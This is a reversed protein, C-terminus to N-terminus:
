VPFSGGCRFAPLPCPLWQFGKGECLSRTIEEPTAGTFKATCDNKQLYIGYDFRTASLVSDESGATRRLVVGAFLCRGDEVMVVVDGIEPVPLDSGEVFAIEVELQRSLSAKDGSWSWSVALDTIDQRIGNSHKTLYLKM